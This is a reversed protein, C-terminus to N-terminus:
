VAFHKLKKMNELNNKCVHRLLNSTNNHLMDAKLIASCFKCKVNKEKVGDDEIWGVEFIKWCYSRKESVRPEVKYMRMKKKRVPIKM